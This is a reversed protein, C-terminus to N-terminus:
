NVSFPAHFALAPIVSLRPREPSPGPVPQTAAEEPHSDNRAAAALAVGVTVLFGLFSLCRVM